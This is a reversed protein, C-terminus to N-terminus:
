QTARAPVKQQELYPRLADLTKVLAGSLSALAANAGERRRQAEAANAYLRNIAAALDSASNVEIAGDSALLAAYADNFNHHSPGTLVVAGHRVRSLTQFARM